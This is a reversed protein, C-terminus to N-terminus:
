RVLTVVRSFLRTRTRWRVLYLGPAHGSLDLDQDGRGVGLSLVRRGMMDFVGVASFTEIDSKLLFHGKTPNPYLSWGNEDPLQIALGSVVDFYATAEGSFGVPAVRGRAVIEGTIRLDADNGALDVNQALDLNLIVLSSDGSAAVLGALDSATTTDFSQVGAPVQSGLAGSGSIQITGQVGLENAAQTFLGAFGPVASAGANRLGLRLDSDAVGGHVTLVTVGLDGYDFALSAAERNVLDLGVVSVSDLGAAGPWLVARVTGAVGFRTVDSASGLNPIGLDAAFDVGSAVTDIEFVASPIVRLRYVLSDRGAFGLNSDYVWAGTSDRRIAGHKPPIVIEVAVSDLGDREDNALLDVLTSRGAVVDVKDGVAIQGVATPTPLLCSMAMAIVAIWYPRSRPTSRMCPGIALYEVRERRGAGRFDRVGTDEM